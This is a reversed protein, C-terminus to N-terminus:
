AAEEFDMLEYSGEAAASTKGTLRRTLRLTYTQTTRNLRDTTRLPDAVIDEYDSRHYRYGTTLLHRNGLAVELAAQLANSRSEAPVDFESTPRANGGFFEDEIRFLVRRGGVTGGLRTAMTVDRLGEIEQYYVIGVEQSVDIIARNGMATAVRIGPAITAAFDDDPTEASSLSNSDYGAGLRIQPTLRLPGWTWLSDEVVSDVEAQILNTGQGFAPVTGSYLTCLTLWGFLTKQNPQM